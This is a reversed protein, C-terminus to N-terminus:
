KSAPSDMPPFKVRGNNLKDLASMGAAITAGIADHSKMSEDLRKAFEKAKEASDAPIKGEKALVEVVPWIYPALREARAKIAELALLADDDIKSATRPAVLKLAAFLAAFIYFAVEIKEYTTM